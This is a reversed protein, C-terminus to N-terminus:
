RCFGSPDVAACAIPAKEPLGIEDILRNLTTGRSRALLLIDLLAERAEASLRSRWAPLPHL